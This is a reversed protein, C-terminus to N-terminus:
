QTYKIFGLNPSDKSIGLQNLVENAIEVVIHWINNELLKEINFSEFDPNNLILSSLIEIRILNAIISQTPFFNNEILQPTLLFANHYNDIVEFPLDVYEPFLPIINDKNDAIALTKLAQILIDFQNKTDQTQM